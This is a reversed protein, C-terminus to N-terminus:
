DPRIRGEVLERNYWWVARSLEDNSVNTLHGGYVTIALASGMMLSSAVPKQKWDTFLSGVIFALPGAINLVTARRSYSDYRLAHYYASDSPQFVPAVRPGFWQLTILVSDQAGRVVAAPTTFGASRVRLACEAYPCPQAVQASAPTATVHAAATLLLALVAIRKPVRIM